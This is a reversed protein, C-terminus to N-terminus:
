IGESGDRDRRRELWDKFSIADGERPHFVYDFEALTEFVSDGIERGTPCREWDPQQGAIEMQCPTHSKMALACRNSQGHHEQVLVRMNRSLTAGYFVCNCEPSVETQVSLPYDSAPQIM